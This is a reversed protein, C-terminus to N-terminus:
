SPTRPFGLGPDCASREGLATCVGGLLGLAAVSSQESPIGRLADSCVLRIGEGSFLEYENIELAGPLASAAAGGEPALGIPKEGVLLAPRRRTLAFDGGDGGIELRRRWRQWVIPGLKVFGIFPSSSEPEDISSLKADGSGKSRDGGGNRKRGCWDVGGWLASRTTAEDDV